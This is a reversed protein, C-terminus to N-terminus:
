YNKKRNSEYEWFMISMDYLERVRKSQRLKYRHEMIIV